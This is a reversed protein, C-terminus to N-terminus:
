HGSARDAQIGAREMIARAAAPWAGDAVLVNDHEMNAQYGNWSGTKRAPAYWNGYASNDTTARLPYSNDMTNVTLWVGAGDIVNDRITLYRSGEDLYLAIRQPIDYIYNESIYSDPSASLNYIAGGDHFLQKVHHIRNNAVIVRRQLTPSDYTLNAPYDYYGRQATRYVPNGGVDNVGWGWGIDIADYPADSINNHVITAGDVYTSLVASNDQYVQSVSQIRNNAIVISRNAARPDGPHHAERSIGGAVIAGGALDTFVSRRVEILRSGLGVGSANAVADNGIGLAIQGLHTLVSQDFVVREAASVQVAAPMQTWDNRRQEFERCGWRCTSLADKPRSTSVGSLFAGSQQDAYGEKSSPGMWSTYSFQIGQFSLDRIPQEHTGSISVLYPLIPLEVSAHAMSDGEAARYYLRGAQPDIYFQGSHSLFALANVLFLHATEAGVPANFADYGWTNNDWAPQQMFLKRGVVKEVPSFRNTFWGTSHAELRQPAPLRALYDYRPDNIEIGEPTFRVSERSLEIEGPRALRDNVWIQRADRGAPIPAVYIHNKKDHLRWGSVPIAGAIVPRASPPAQWTVTTGNQGGDASRFQLPETLRYTGDDLLVVVNATQNHSRVATQAQAISSFPRAETGDGGDRASPSVHLTITEFRPQNEPIFGAQCTAAGMLLVAFAGFYMRLGHKM